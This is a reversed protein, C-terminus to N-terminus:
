GPLRMWEETREREPVGRGAFSMWALLGAGTVLATMMRVGLDAHPSVFGEILGAVFLLPFVPALLRWAIRSERQLAHRRTRPGPRVLARLLVLGGTSALVLAQIELTGHCWLISSISGAQDWHAAVGTYTGLMLGNTALLLVYFPPVLGAAFFLVGITMNHFMIWGAARPSEGLGFSFNGVFREGATTAELQEIEAEVYAANMLSPALDLDARVAFFSLIALAYVMGFSLSLFRWESRITRPADGLFFGAARRAFGLPNGLRPARFLLGHAAGVIRRVEAIRRADDGQAELRALCTCAHRYSAALGTAEDPLLARLRRRQVLTRLARLRALDHDDLSGRKMRADYPVGPRARAAGRASGKPQRAPPTDEPGIASIWTSVGSPM